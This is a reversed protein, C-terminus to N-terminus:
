AYGVMSTILPPEDHVPPEANAAGITFMSEGCVSCRGELAADGADRQTLNHVDEMPRVAKCWSCWAEIHSTLLERHLTM